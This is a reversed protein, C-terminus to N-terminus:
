IVALAIYIANRDDQRGNPTVLAARRSNGIVCTYTGADTCNFHKDKIHLNVATGPQRNAPAYYILHATNNSLVTGNVDLWYAPTIETSNTCACTLRNGVNEAGEEATLGTFRAFKDQSGRRFLYLELPCSHDQVAALGPVPPICYVSAYM